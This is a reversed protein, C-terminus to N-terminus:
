VWQPRAVVWWGSAVVMAAAGAALVATIRRPAGARGWATRWEALLWAALVALVPVLPLRFRSCGFTVVVPLLHAALFVVLISWGPRGASLVLGAAALPFLLAWAAVAAHALVSRTPEWATGDVRTSYAMRKGWGGDDPRLLLRAAPLSGPAAARPLMEHAKELLWWPMRSRVAQLVQPRAAAEREAPTKGLSRYRAYGDWYSPGAWTPGREAGEQVSPPSVNGIYLNMWRTHTVLAVDDSERNQRITWGAVVGALALSLLLARSWRGPSGLNRWPVAWAACCAGLFVGVERTLAAGGLLAGAVAARGPGATSAALVIAGLALPIYVQESWLSPSYLVLNPYAAMMAAAVLGTRDGGFRRGLLWTLWPILSGAAVSAARAVEVSPGFVALFAALYWVFGPPRKGEALIERGEALRAARTYYDSEDLVLPSPQLFWWTGLRLLLGAVLIAALWRATGTM